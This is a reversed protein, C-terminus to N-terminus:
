KGENKCIKDIYNAITKSSNGPEKVGLNDYFAKVKKKYSKEDFNNIVNVLEDNNTALPFPTDEIKIAFDRDKTYEDIDSAFIMAPKYSLSYDFICSSYDTIMFNAAVLLEQMDPYDTANIINSGLNTIKYAYQSINPHLRVLIKWKGGFKNHLSKSLLEFNIDYHEFSNEVRFTPAYLCIQDYDDLKFYKKVNNIVEHKKNIIIDNRPCGCELIEGNYWFDRRYLNSCYTSNSIFLNAMKSDNKAGLLYEKNLSTEASKEVKKYAICGHWVQIYTQNKRKREYFQKRCNDIWVRSTVQEYVYKITNRKVVRVSSPLTSSFSYDKVVWVIDYKNNSVLLENVIYKPIDGYGKGYFNSVFIKNSKVPFFRFLYYLFTLLTKKVLYKM